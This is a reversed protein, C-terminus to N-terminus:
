LEEVVEVELLEETAMEAARAEERAAKEAALQESHCGVAVFVMNPHIGSAEALDLLLGFFENHSITKSNEPDRNAASYFLRDIDTHRVRSQIVPNKCILDAVKQWKCWNMCKGDAATFFRYVEKVRDIVSSAEGPEAVWSVDQVVDQYRSLRLAAVNRNHQLCQGVIDSFPMGSQTALERLVQTVLDTVSSLDDKKEVRDNSSPGEVSVVLETVFSEPPSGPATEPLSSAAPNPESAQSASDQSRGRLVSSVTHDVVTQSFAKGCDRALVKQVLTKVLDGLPKGFGM